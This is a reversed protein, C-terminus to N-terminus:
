ISKLHSSLKDILESILIKRSQFLEIYLNFEEEKEIIRRIENSRSNKIIIKRNKRLAELGERIISKLYEYKIKSQRDKINIYKECFCKSKAYEWFEKTAYINEFDDLIVYADEENKIPVFVREM